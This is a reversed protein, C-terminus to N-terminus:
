YYHFCYLLSPSLAPRYIGDIVSGDMWNGPKSHKPVSKKLKITANKSDKKSAVKITQDAGLLTLQFSSNCAHYIIIDGAWRQAVRRRAGHNSIRRSSTLIHLKRDFSSFM